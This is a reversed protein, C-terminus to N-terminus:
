AGPLRPEPAAIAPRPATRGREVHARLRQRMARVREPEREALNTTQQPDSALHFLECDAGHPEVGRMERFWRPEQGNVDGTPADILVWDGERLALEESVGTHHIAMDRRQEVARGELLEDLFSYGDEAAEEPLGLDFYDALTPLLDTQSVLRGSVRGAPVRDPWSVIFPVRHGGEWLNRKLGRLPGMSFHGHRPVYDYAQREPGHDSSLVILTNDRLGNRELAEVIRGVAWDFQAVYDGYYGLPSSGRLKAAPVHPWHPVGPSYYIFFPAEATQNYRDREVRGGKADIYDCVTRVHHLQAEPLDFREFRPAGGVSMGNEFYWRAGDVAEAAGPERNCPYTATYGGKGFWLDLEEYAFGIRRGAYIPKDYDIAEPSVDVGERGPRAASAWDVGLGWKGVTATDYGLSALMSALTWRDPEIWPQAGPDVNGRWKGTRWPYRGTMLAYRSPSCIASAAHADTFRVGREALADMNPTPIRCRADYCGVDGYGLDDAYIVVINPHSPM